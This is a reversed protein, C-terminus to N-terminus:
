ASIRTKVWFGDPLPRGILKDEPLAWSYEREDALLGSGRVSGDPGLVVEGVAPGRNDVGWESKHGFKSYSTDGTTVTIGHSVFVLPCDGHPKHGTVVSTVGSRALYRAVAADVPTANGNDLWDAYIITAGGNGNPVGYDMLGHGARTQNNTGTYPDAEFAAVQADKWANLRLVWDDVTPALEDVGPVTGLNSRLVAGHVFLHPGERHALVGLRLYELMWPDGSAPDCEDRYSQVVDEDTVTSVDPLGRIQALEFARREFAGASGMTYKLMWKLRNARTDPTDEGCEDLFDQPTKATGPKDWYPFSVDTRVSDSAMAEDGLETTLRM